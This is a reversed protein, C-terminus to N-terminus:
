NNNKKKLIKEINKKKEKFEKLLDQEVFLDEKKTAKDRLILGQEELVKPGDSQQLRLYTLINKLGITDTYRIYKGNSIKILLVEPEVVEKKVIAIKCGASYNDDYSRRTREDEKVIYDTCRLIPGIYMKYKM